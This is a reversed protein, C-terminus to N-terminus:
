KDTDFMFDISAFPSFNIIVRYYMIRYITVLNLNNQGEGLFVKFEVYYHM